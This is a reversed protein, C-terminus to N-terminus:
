KTCQVIILIIIGLAIVGVIVRMMWLRKLQIKKMDDANNYFISSSKQLLASQRESSELSTMNALQNDINKSMVASIQSVSENASYLRDLSKLDSYKKVISQYPKKLSKAINSSTMTQFNPLKELETQAEQVLTYAHREPYDESCLVVCAIQNANIRCFWAGNSTKIKQREEPKLNLLSLKKTINFAEKEFDGSKSEGYQSTILPEGSTRGLALIRVTPQSM